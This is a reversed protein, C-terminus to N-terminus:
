VGPGQLQEADELVDIDPPREVSVAEDPTLVPPASSARDANDPPPATPVSSPSSGSNWLFFGSFITGGKWQANGNDWAFSSTWNEYYANGCPRDIWHGIVGLGYTTVSNYIYGTDRCVQWSQGNWKMLQSRVALEGPPQTHGDDWNNDDFNWTFSITENPIGLITSSGGVNSPGNYPVQVRGRTQSRSNEGIWDCIIDPDEGPDPIEVCICFFWGEGTQVLHGQTLAWCKYNPREAAAKPAGGHPGWSVATAGISISAAVPLLRWTTALM